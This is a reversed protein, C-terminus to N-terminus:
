LRVRAGPARRRCSDVLVKTLRALANREAKSLGAREGKGFVTLLFVPL